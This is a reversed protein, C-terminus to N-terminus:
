GSEDDPGLAIEGLRETVLIRGDDWIEVYRVLIGTELDYIVEYSRSEALARDLAPDSKRDEESFGVMGGDYVGRATLTITGARRDIEEIRWGTEDVSRRFSLEGTQVRGTRALAIAPHYFGAVPPDEPGPCGYPGVTRGPGLETIACGSPEGTVTTNDSELRRALGVIEPASGDTFEWYFNGVSEHEVQVVNFGLVEGDPGREDFRYTATFSGIETPLEVAESDATPSQNIDSEVSQSNPNPENGDALAITVAVASAIVVVGLLGIWISSPRRLLDRLDGM